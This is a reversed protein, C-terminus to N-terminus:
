AESLDYGFEGAVDACTACVIEREAASLQRGRGIAKKDVPRPKRLVDWDGVGDFAVRPQTSDSMAACYAIGREACMRAVTGQPDSVIDEYREVTLGRRRAWAVYHVWNAAAWRVVHARDRFAVLYPMRLRLLRGPFGIVWRCLKITSAAVDYPNRILSVVPGGSSALDDLLPENHWSEALGERRYTEKIVLRRFGNVSALRRFFRGMQVARAHGPPRLRHLAAKKQFSYFFRQLQWDPLISHTLYPESLSIANGGGAFLLGVLTTGSRPPGIVYLEEVTQSTRGTANPM